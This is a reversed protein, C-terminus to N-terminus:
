VNHWKRGDFMKASKDAYLFVVKPPKDGYVQHSTVENKDERQACDRAIISARIQATTQFPTSKM